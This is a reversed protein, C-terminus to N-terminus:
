NRKKLLYSRSPSFSLLSRNVIKLSVDIIKVAVNPQTAIIVDDFVESNGDPFYLRVGESLLEVKTIRTGSRLVFPEQPVHSFILFRTGLTKRCCRQHRLLIEM